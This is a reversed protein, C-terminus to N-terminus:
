IQLLDKDEFTGADKLRQVERAEKEKVHSEEKAKLLRRRGKIANTAIDVEERNLSMAFFWFMVRDGVSLGEELEEIKKKMTEIKIIDNMLDEAVELYADSTHTSVLDVFEKLSESM